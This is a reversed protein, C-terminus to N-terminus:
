YDCVRFGEPVPDAIPIEKVTLIHGDRKTIKKVGRKELDARWERTWQYHRITAYTDSCLRSIDYVKRAFATLAYERVEDGVDAWQEDLEVPDTSKPAAPITGHDNLYTKREWRGEYDEDSDYDNLLEEPHYRLKMTYNTDRVISEFGRARHKFYVLTDFEKMEDSTEGNLYERMAVVGPLCYKDMNERFHSSVYARVYAQEHKTYDDPVFTNDDRANEELEDLVKLYKAPKFSADSPKPEAQITASM